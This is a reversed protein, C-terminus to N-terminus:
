GPPLVKVQETFSFQTGNLFAGNVTLPYELSSDISAGILTSTANISEGPLLPNSPSANFSFPWPTLVNRPNVFALTANLSTIPTEGINKLSISVVPGGPNYPPIPGTVSVVEVQSGVASVVQFHAYVTQNWMDEAVITYPGPSFQHFYSQYVSNLSAIITSNSVNDIEVYTGNVPQTWYGILANAGESGCGWGLETGSFTTTVGNEFTTGNAKYPSTICTGTTANELMRVTQARFDSSFSSNTSLTAVHSEPAFQVNQVYGQNYFRNPCTTAVPPTLSLPTGAQSFNGAAYNGQFLAFGFTDDVSSLGCLTDYNDWNAINPNASYDAALSVNTALTNVLSVQATLPSGQPTATSSLKVQLQVGLPSVVSYYTPSQTKTSQSTTTSASKSAPTSNTRLYVAGILSAGIVVLLVISAVLKARGHSDQNEM